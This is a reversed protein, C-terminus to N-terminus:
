LWGALRAKIEDLRLVRLPNSGEANQAHPLERFKTWRGAWQLGASEVAEGYILWLDNHKETALKGHVLPYCDMAEGYNHWSEGPGANTVVRGGPTGKQPGVRVIIDALFGFGAGRMRAIKAEIEGRTRNMRYLAAQSELDRLTSAVLLDNDSARDFAALVIEAKSRCEPTLDGLNRSNLM